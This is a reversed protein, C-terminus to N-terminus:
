KESNNDIPLHDIKALIQPAAAVGSGGTEVPRDHSHFM